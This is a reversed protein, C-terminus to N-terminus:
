PKIMGKGPHILHYFTIIILLVFIGSLLFPLWFVPIKLTLMVQGASALYLGYGV